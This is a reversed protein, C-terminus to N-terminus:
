GLTRVEHPVFRYRDGNEAKIWFLTQDTGDQRPIKFAGDFTGRIEFGSGKAIGIVKTGVKMKERPQKKPPHPINSM